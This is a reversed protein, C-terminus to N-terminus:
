RIKKCIAIYIVPFIFHPITIIIVDSFYRYLLRQFDRKSFHNIHWPDYIKRGTRKHPYIIKKLCSALRNVRQKFLENPVTFIATGNIKLIRKIQKIAKEPDLVHELVETCIVTPFSNNKFPLEVIDSQIYFISDRGKNKAKTLMLMRKSIDLCIHNKCNLRDILVGGGCGADLLLSDSSSKVHKSIHRFRLEEIHRSIANLSEYFNEPYEAIGMQENWEMFDKHTIKEIDKLGRNPNLHILNKNKM